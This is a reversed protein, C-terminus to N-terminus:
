LLGEKKMEEEQDRKSLYSLIKWSDGAKEILYSIDFEIVRDGTKDFSAGWRVTAIAHIPSLATDQLSVVTMGRMGHQRNFDGVQRLWDLFRADNTFAQSGQPGGVIFTPAYLPALDEPRPGMSLEAYRHFFDLLSM